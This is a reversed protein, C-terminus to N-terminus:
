AVERLAPLACVADLGLVHAVRGLGMWVAVCFALDVIEDDSLAAKFRTWFDEDAALAKPDLGVKEAYEIALKERESLVPSTRWEHVAAYFAEDPAPGNTREIDPRDRLVRFNQCLQCGNILATRMRAGEFLRIPLRSTRYTVDSFSFAANVIDPAYHEALHGLPNQHHAEPLAVRM